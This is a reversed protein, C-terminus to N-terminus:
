HTEAPCDAALCRRVRRTWSDLVVVDDGAEVLRRVVRFGILGAGGPVPTRM